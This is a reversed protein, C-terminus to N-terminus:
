TDLHVLRFHKYKTFQDVLKTTALKLTKSHDDSAQLKTFLHVDKKM